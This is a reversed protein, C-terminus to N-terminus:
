YVYVYTYINYMYIYIDLQIQETAGVAAGPALADVLVYLLSLAQYM